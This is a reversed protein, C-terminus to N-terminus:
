LLTLLGEAPKPLGLSGKVLKVYEKTSISYKPRVTHRLYSIKVEYHVRVM